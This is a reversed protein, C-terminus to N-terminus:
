EDREGRLAIVNAAAALHRKAEKRFHSRLRLNAAYAFESNWLQVRARWQRELLRDCAPQPTVRLDSPLKVTHGDSLRQLANENLPLANM